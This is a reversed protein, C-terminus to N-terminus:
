LPMGKAYEKIMRKAINEDKEDRIYQPASNWLRVAQQFFRAAGTEDKPIPALFGKGTRRTTRGEAVYDEVFKLSNAAPLHHNIQRWTEMLTMEITLQNVTPVGVEAVLDSLPKRDKLTVGLVTRLGKNVQVQLQQMSASTPDDAPAFAGTYYYATDLKPCIFDM